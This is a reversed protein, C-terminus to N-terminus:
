PTNDKQRVLTCIVTTGPINPSSVRDWNGQSLSHVLATGLGDPGHTVGVGNDRATLTLSDATCTLDLHIETAAGHRRANSAFETSLRDVLAVESPTVEESAPFSFTVEMVGRWSETLSTTLEHLTSSHPSGSNLTGQELDDFLRTIHTRVDSLSHPANGLKVAHALLQNQVYGHLYEATERRRLLYVIRDADPEPGTDRLASLQGHVADHTDRASFVAGLILVTMVLAIYLSTDAVISTVGPLPGVTNLTVMEILIVACAPTLFFILPGTLPGRLPIQRGLVLVGAALAAQLVSRLSAEGVGVLPAQLFFLSVVLSLSTWLPSFRHNRIAARALDRFNFSDVRGEEHQWLKHSMPRVDHEALETLAERLHEASDGSREIQQKAKVIFEAVDEDLYRTPASSLEKAVITRILQEREQNYEALISGIMGFAPLLWLGIVVAPVAAQGLSELTIPTDTLAWFLTYTVVGKILGVIGGVVCVHWNKLGHHATARRVLTRWAFGAATLALAAAGNACLAAWIHRPSLAFGLLMASNVCWITIAVAWLPLYGSWPSRIRDRWRLTQSTM